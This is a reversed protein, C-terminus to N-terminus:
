AFTQRHTELPSSPVWPDNLPHGMGDSLVKANQHLLVHYNGCLNVVCQSTHEGIPDIDQQNTDIKQTWLFPRLLARLFLTYLVFFSM